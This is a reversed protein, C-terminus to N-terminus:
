RRLSRWLLYPPALILAAIAGAAVLAAAVALLPVIVYGLLLIGPLSLVFLPLLLIAMGASLDLVDALMRGADPTKDV